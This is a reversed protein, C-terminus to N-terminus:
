DMKVTKGWPPTVNSDAVVWIVPINMAASEQPFPAYGDTLIIIVEPREDPTFGNKLYDFIEHFSTGGGGIPKVSLLEDKESFDVPDTVKTDFFSLMGSFNDMQNICSVIEGYVEAITKDSISGSTDVLFWLNKVSNGYVNELFSPMIIDSDFRRDPVLYDFDSRNHCIFDHLVQRWDVRTHAVYEDFYRRLGAPLGSGDSCAKAANKIHHNWTDRLLQADEIQGWEGHSDFTNEKVAEESLCDCPNNKGSGGDFPISNNKCFDRLEGASSKMLMEYIDEATYERGEVGDPAIHMVDNGDVSFTRLGLIDLAVSNVVVDCAINYILNNLGRGRICHKLVCHLVEHLFVFSLEEDTLRKVFEPDFVVNEMDTYATECEAVGMKLHLLLRSFFPVNNVLVTRADLLRKATMRVEENNM